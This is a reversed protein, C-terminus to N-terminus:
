DNPPTGLLLHLQSLADELANAQEDLTESIDEFTESYDSLGDHVSWEHRAAWNISTQFTSCRKALERLNELDKCTITM